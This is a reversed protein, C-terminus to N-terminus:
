SVLSAAVGLSIIRDAREILAPRHAVVIRTVDMGSVLDAILEETEIDLNATGEDLVLIKPSRYLARALLLRQKQGGSLASGMDGILSLYKMPMKEIDEDIQSERAAERVREMDMAPDFFAINDAISGSMLRDDQAVFGLHSRWARWLEPDARQGGLMVTGTTPTQLGLMLKLLTSKGCGSPGTIAVFEGEAITLNLNKFIEPDSSGYQFSVGRLEISARPSIDVEGFSPTDPEASIIDGLRDLHLALLRFQTVQGALSMARDSFTQRFSLFALLMGVSMGQGALVERAGLYVVLVSSGGVILNQLWTASIQMWGAAISANIARSYLNRWTGVREAERGMVKITTAARVSEMMHSREAATAVLFAETRSRTFPFLCFNAIIVLGFAGVVIAGLAASYLFLISAAVLALVGDILASVLGRSLADQIASTSGMRSLIDGVSRKEFYSAPLRLLHRFLNAVAQYAFLSSLAQVAWSRVAELSVQVLILALFGLVLVNLIASDARGIAEDVVLQIQFPAIFAAVQLTASLGLVTLLSGSLGRSGTWLSNISVKTRAEIPKFKASPSLELLVGTFHKSAEAYSLTRAGSAPDHITITREDAKRLVVFHNLNWHLIAPTAAFRLDEPETRLARAMLSLSDAIKILTRLTAGSMSIPFRQRLSNLDVDHGHYCSVMALCALGCEASEAAIITPLRRGGWPTLDTSIM